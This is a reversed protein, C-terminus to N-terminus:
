LKEKQKLKQHLRKFYKQQEVLGSYTQYLPNKYAGITDSLLWAVAQRTDDDTMEQLAVQKVADLEKTASRWQAMWKQKQELTLETKM